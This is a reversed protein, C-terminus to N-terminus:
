STPLDLMKLQRCELDSIRNLRLDNSLLPMNLTLATAVIIADPLKLTHQRRLQIAKTKIPEYLNIPERTIQTALLQKIIFSLDRLKYATSKYLMYKVTQFTWFYGNF